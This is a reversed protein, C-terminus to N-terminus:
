KFFYPLFIILGVAVSAIVFLLVAAAATDKAVKILPHREPSVRDCLKEIATNFAEAAFVGGICLILLCWQAASVSFLFGAAVVCLAALLHIKAHAENRFMSAIGAFAYGFADKRRRWYSKRSDASNIAAM